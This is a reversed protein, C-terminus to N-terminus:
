YEYNNHYHAISKLDDRSILGMNYADKLQYFVDEQWLYIRGHLWDANGRHDILIGDIEEDSQTMTYPSTTRIFIALYGQYTGYYHFDYPETHNQLSIFKWFEGDVVYQYSNRIRAWVDESLEAPEIPAPIFETPGPTPGDPVPSASVTPEFHRLNNYYAINKIDEETLLGQDYAYQLHYFTDDKWLLVRCYLTDSQGSYYFTCGAVEEKDCCPIQQIKYIRLSTYGQYTGYYDIYRFPYESPININVVDETTMCQSAQKMQEWQEEMLEAPDLPAPVFETPVPTPMETPIPTQEINAPQETCGTSLLFIICFSILIKKM